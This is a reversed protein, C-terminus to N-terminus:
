HSSQRTIQNVMNERYFGWTTELSYIEVVFDGSFIDSEM